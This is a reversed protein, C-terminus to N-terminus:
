ATYGMVRNFRLQVAYLVALVGYLAVNATLTYRDFFDGKRLMLLLNLLLPNLLMCAYLARDEYAYRTQLSEKSKAFIRLLMVALTVLFMSRAISDFARYYFKGAMLPSARYLPWLMLGQYVRFLPIYMLMAVM